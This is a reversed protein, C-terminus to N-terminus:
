EKHKILFSFLYVIVESTIFCIRSAITMAILMELPTGSLKLYFAMVGERVGIGAPVFIAVMGINNALIQVLGIELDINEFFGNYLVFFAFGLILWQLVVLPMLKLFAPIEMGSLKNLPFSLKSPLTHSRASFLIALLLGATTILFLLIKVWLEEFLFWLSYSGILLGFFTFILQQVFAIGSLKILKDDQTKLSVAKGIPVWIKGPVYKLLITSFQSHISRWRSIRFGYLLLIKNWAVARLFFVLLLLLICTISKLPRIILLSWDFDQRFLYIVFFIIGVFPLFYLIRKVVVM